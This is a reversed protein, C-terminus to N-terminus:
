CSILSRITKSYSGTGVLSRARGIQRYDDTSNNDLILLEDVLGLFNNIVKSIFIDSNKVQLVGIIKRKSIDSVNESFSTIQQDEYGVGMAEWQRHGKYTTLNFSCGDWPVPFRAKMVQVFNWGLKEANEDVIKVQEPTLDKRSFASKGDEGVKCEWDFHWSFANEESHEDRKLTPLIRFDAFRFNDFADAIEQEFKELEFDGYKKWNESM